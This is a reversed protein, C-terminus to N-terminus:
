NKGAIGHRVEKGEKLYIVDEAINNALDSVRELNHGVMILNLGTKVLNRDKEMLTTLQAFIGDNYADVIDDQKLVNRALEVDSNVFASLADHVMSEVNQAMEKLHIDAALPLEKVLLITREAVNVAHDGMRELTTNIKLIMTILRLDSAMPQGIALLSHGTDDIEIEFQNIKKENEFVKNALQINRTLLATVSQHITEEVLVGMSLLQQKLAQLDDHFHRKM